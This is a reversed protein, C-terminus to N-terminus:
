HATRKLSRLGEEAVNNFPAIELSREYESIAAERDGAAAELAALTNHVGLLDVMHPQAARLLRVAGRPDGAAGIKQADSPVTDASLLQDGVDAPLGKLFIVAGSTNHAGMLTEYQDVLARRRRLQPLMQERLSKLQQASWWHGDIAVGSISRVAAVVDILPNTNLLVFDARTGPAIVGFRMGMELRLQTTVFAGPNFTATRLAQFNTLGSKRLLELEISLCEGPLCTIPADTGALMLVHADNLKSVIGEQVAYQDKIRAVFAPLNPRNSYSNNRPSWEQYMSSSMFQVEARALVEQLHIAQDPISYVAVLNPVLAVGHEVMAHVIKDYDAPSSSSNLYHTLEESHAVLDLGHGLVEDMPLHIPVHGVVPLGRQHAATVIAQFAPDLMPSYVKAMVAGLRIQGDLIEPVHSSDVIAYDRFSGKPGTLIQTTSILHPAPSPLRTQRRRWYLPEGDFTGITTIGYNVYTVLETLGNPHTHFDVLGPILFKGTADLEVTFPSNGNINAQHDPGLEAIRGNRVVVLQDQLLTEQDMPLVNVHRIVLSAHEQTDSDAWAIQFGALVSLVVIMRRSLEIPGV